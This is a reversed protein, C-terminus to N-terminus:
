LLMIKKINKIVNEELECRRLQLQDLERTKEESPTKHQSLTSKINDFLEVLATENAFYDALLKEEKKLPLKKSSRALIKEKYINQLRPYVQIIAAKATHVQLSKQLHRTQYNSRCKVPVPAKEPGFMDRLLDWSGWVTAAAVMVLLLLTLHPMMQRVSTKRDPESQNGSCYKNYLKILDMKDALDCDAPFSPYNSVAEGTLACYIVKGLAYYDDCAEYGRIGALVESPMFGPTGRLTTTAADTVLGIDGLRARNNIFLINDPKIDRHFLGKRHLTQLNELLELHMKRVAEADLRSKHLRNALTDPVYLAPDDSLNDAIDMTYYFFDEYEKVQYIQLLNTNEAIIQYQRLGKLECDTKHAFKYVIKLAVCAATLQNEARFVTGYAGHGCESLLLYEDIVDGAKYNM